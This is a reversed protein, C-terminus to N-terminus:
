DDGPLLEATYLQSVPVTADALGQEGLYLQMAEWVAPDDHRVGRAFLDITAAFSARSLEDDFDPNAQVFQEYARDPDDITATVAQSLGQLFRRLEVPREAVTDPHAVLVIDYTTPVGYEEQPFFVADLGMLEVQIKEYNRFAGIADVQNTALSVVTNYGVNILTVADPEVGACALMTKWLVPELPELAYGIRAGDLDTLTVVRGERSLALLGGLTSDILAGIAVLPLGEAQAMLYNTQPTLAVDVTRAAALRVPDSPNAPVLIEVDVGQGAYLGTEEAVYLPVHNPNPFFDLMVQIPADRGDPRLVLYLAVGIAVVVVAVFLVTRGRKM